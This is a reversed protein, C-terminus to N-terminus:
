ISGGDLSRVDVYTDTILAGDIDGVYKTMEIGGETEGDGIYLRKTDTTWFPVGSDFTQLVRYSNTGRRFQIKRCTHIVTM